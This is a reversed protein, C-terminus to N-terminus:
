GARPVSKREVFVIILVGAAIAIRNAIMRWFALAEAYFSMPDFVAAQDENLSARNGASAHSGNKSSAAGGNQFRSPPVLPERAALLRALETRFREFDYGRSILDLFPKSWDKGDQERLAMPVSIELYHKGSRRLTELAASYGGNDFIYLGITEDDPVRRLLQQLEIVVQGQGAGNLDVSATHHDSFLDASVHDDFVDLSAGGAGGGRDRLLEIMQRAALPAREVIALKRDPHGTAAEIKQPPHRSALAITVILILLFAAFMNASMDSLAITDSRDLHM